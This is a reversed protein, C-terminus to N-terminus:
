EARLARLPDIRTARIGPIASALVAIALVLVAAGTFVVPDTASTQFLLAQVQRSLLIATLAGIGM